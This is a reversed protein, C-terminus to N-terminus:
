KAEIWEVGSSFVNPELAKQGKTARIAATRVQDEPGGYEVFAKVRRASMVDSWDAVLHLAKEKRLSRLYTYFDDHPMSAFASSVDVPKEPTPPKEHM